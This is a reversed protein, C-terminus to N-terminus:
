QQSYSIFSQPTPIDEFPTIVCMFVYARFDQPGRFTWAGIREQPTGVSIQGDVRWQAHLLM